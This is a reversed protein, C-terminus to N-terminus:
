KTEELGVMDWQKEEVFRITEFVNQVTGDYERKHYNYLWIDDVAAFMAKFGKRRIFNIFPRIKTVLELSGSKMVCNGAANKKYFDACEYCDSKTQNCTKCKKDCYEKCISGKIFINKVFHTPKPVCTSRKLIYGKNCASCNNPFSCTSCEDPCQYFTYLNTGVIVALYLGSEDMTSSIINNGIDM